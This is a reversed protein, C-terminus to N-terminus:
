FKGNADTCGDSIMKPSRRGSSLQGGCSSRGVTEARETTGAHEM